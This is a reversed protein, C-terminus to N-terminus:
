NKQQLIADSLRCYLNEDGDERYTEFTGEVVIEANDEPYEDPYIHSGDDWIFEMGQACCATADQIICYFYYKKTAEYYTAYFNGDIRFTKGEYEEPTVMMQYVTAYVMDSSMQTLDYDVTEDTDRVNEAGSITDEIDKNSEVDSSAKESETTETKGDENAIQNDIVKEISNTNNVGKGNTGKKNSCGTILLICLLLVMCKKLNKM